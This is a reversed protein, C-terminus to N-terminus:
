PGTTQPGHARGLADEPGDVAAGGAPMLVRAARRRAPRPPRRRPAAQQSTPPTAPPGTAVAVLLACPPNFRWAGEAPFSHQPHRRPLEVGGAPISGAGPSRILRKPGTRPGQLM